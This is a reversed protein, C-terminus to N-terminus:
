AVAVELIPISHMEQDSTTSRCATAALALPVSVSFLHQNKAPYIEPLISLSIQRVAHNASICSATPFHLQLCPPLNACEAYCQGVDAQAVWSAKSGTPVPLSCTVNQPLYYFLFLAVFCISSTPSNQVVYKM